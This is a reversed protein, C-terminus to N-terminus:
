WATGRLPVGTLVTALVAVDYANAGYPAELM